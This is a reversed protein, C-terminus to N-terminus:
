LDVVRDSGGRDEVKFLGLRSDLRIFEEDGSARAITLLFQQLVMPKADSSTLRTYQDSREFNSM